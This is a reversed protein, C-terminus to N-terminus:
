DEVHRKRSFLVVAGGFAVALALIYPLSDLSIGTDIEGDKYNTFAATQEAANITGSDGTMTTTYGDASYSDETVTYKVGYPINEITITEGDKLWFVNDGFTVAAPNKNGEKDVYSGQSSVNFNGAFTKDELTDQELKLTFKFYKSTDGLKGTVIKTINLKGASYTNEFTDSKTSGEGKTTDYSGDEKAEETHVAAVCVKGNQEIVTVVLKINESRYTVGATSGVTEKLTYEYIGVREYKPLAITINGRAGDANAAGAAFTAGTITGLAPASTADGSKVVGAGVQELTFTEAPSSGAGILKYVKTITVQTMDDYTTEEPETPETPTSEGDAFVAVSLCFMMCLVLALALLKKITKM